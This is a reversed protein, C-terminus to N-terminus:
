PARLGKPVRALRRATRYASTLALCGYLFKHLGRLSLLSGPDSLVARFAARRATRQDGGAVLYGATTFFMSAFAERKLRHVELPLGPTDFLRRYIRELEPAARVLGAVTKSDDHLRYTSLVEPLFAIQHRLGARLWFDWDMFYYLSQDLPGVDTYVRRRIFTSPQPIPNECRRVFSTYDFDRGGLPRDLRRGEADVFVTQGYVIAASPNAQFYQVVSRISGDLLTDDSNLWALIEGDCERWGANIAATQGQNRQTTWVVRNGYSRLLSETGDTSGDNVVRYDVRPYDQTLVSEITARLFGAQNYTPTVVSVLPPDSVLTPGNGKM